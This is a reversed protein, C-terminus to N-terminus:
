FTSFLKTAYKNEKGDSKDKSCEKYYQAILEDLQVSLDYVIKYDQGNIISNNLKERLECIKDNLM